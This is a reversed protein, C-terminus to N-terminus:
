YRGNVVKCGALFGFRNTSYLKWTGSGGRHLAEGEDGEGDKLLQSVSRWTVLLGKESLEWYDPVFPIFDNWSKNPRKASTSNQHALM